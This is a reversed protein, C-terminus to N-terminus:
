HINDSTQPTEEILKKKAQYNDEILKQKAQVTEEILQKKAQVDQMEPPVKGSKLTKFLNGLLTSIKDDTTGKTLLAAGKLLTLAVYLSMWNSGLFELLIADLSFM